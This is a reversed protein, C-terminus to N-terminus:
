GGALALIQEVSGRDLSQAARYPHYHSLDSSIVILTEEGGWAEDLLRAVDADSVNGVALPVLTFDDLGSQLFPLQVELAHEAAHAAESPVVGPLRALRDILERDLQVVGLPTAFADATPFAIGRIAVRHT